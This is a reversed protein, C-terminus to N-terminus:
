FKRALLKLTKKVMGCKLEDAPTTREFDIMDKLADKVTEVAGRRVERGLLDEDLMVRMRGGAQISVASSGAAEAGSWADYIDTMSAPRLGKESVAYGAIKELLFPTQPYQLSTHAYVIVPIGCDAMKDIANKYYEFVEDVSCNTNQFFLEPAVPFIPIELIGTSKNGVCPKTPFGLYDYSFDSSYKYGEDELAKMLNMNWKGSPAAFGTTVTGIKELFFKAKHINHRNSKYDRYTYHYYGHSQIDIGIDRCKIIEHPDNKFSNVCFFITIAEKQKRFVDHYAAFSDKSYEDADIRLSFVDNLINNRSGIKGCIPERAVKETVRLVKQGFEKRVAGRYRM